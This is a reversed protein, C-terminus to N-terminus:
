TRTVPDYTPPAGSIPSVGVTTIPTGTLLGQLHSMYFSTKSAYKVEMVDFKPNLFRELTNDGDGVKQTAALKLRPVILTICFYLAHMLLYDYQAQEDVTPDEASSEGETIITVYDVESRNLNLKLELEITRYDMEDDSLDNNSIGLTSRIKDTDTLGLITKM